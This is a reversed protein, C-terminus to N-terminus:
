RWEQFASPRVASPFVFRMGADRVTDTEPALRCHGRPRFFKTPSVLEFCGVIAVNVLFTCVKLLSVGVSLEYIEFPFYIGGSIM